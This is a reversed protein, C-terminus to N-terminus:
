KPYHRSLANIVSKKYTRSIPLNIEKVQIQEKTYSLVKDANVIYSRHIRLFSDPLTTALKSIKEKTTIPASSAIHIKVYDGLSELYDIDDPLIRNVKRQARVLLVPNEQKRKEDQWDRTKQQNIILQRALSIFSYLLVMCYLIIALVPFDTALPLMNDYRYHALLTFAATVVLMEMYLSVVLLYCSYLVFKAIKKKFLYRPVLYHNFFYATGIVVPILMGVFLFPESYNSYSSGFILTLLAIVLLWFLTHALVKM